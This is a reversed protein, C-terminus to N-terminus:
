LFEKTVKWWPANDDWTLRGTGNFLDFGGWIIVGDAYELCTEIQARWFDDGIYQDPFESGNHFDFWLFPYIDKSGDGYRRGQKINEIAYKKWGEVDPYFTYLSPMIIDMANGGQLTLTNADVMKKHQKSDASAVAGWYDRRPYTAYTGVRAGPDLSQIKKKRKVMERDNLNEADMYVAARAPRNILQSFDGAVMKSESILTLPHMLSAESTKNKFLTGDHILNSM